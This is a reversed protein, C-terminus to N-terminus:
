MVTPDWQVTSAMLHAPASPSHPTSHTPTKQASEKRNTDLQSPLHHPPVATSTLAMVGLLSRRNM